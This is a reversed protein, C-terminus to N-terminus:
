GGINRRLVGFVPRGRLLRAAHLPLEQRPQQGARRRQQRAQQREGEVALQGVHEEDPQDADDAADDEGDDAHTLFFDAAEFPEQCFCLTKSPCIVVLGPSTLTPSFNHEAMRCHVPFCLNVGLNM